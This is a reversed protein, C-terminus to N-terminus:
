VGWLSVRGQTYYGDHTSMVVSKVALRTLQIFTQKDISPTDFNGGYLLDAANEISEDVPVNTYLSSVDYSIFVEDQELKLSKIEKVIKDTTVNIKSQPM